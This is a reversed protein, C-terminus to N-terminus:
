FIENIGEEYTDFHGLRLIEKSTANLVVINLGRGGGNLNKRM